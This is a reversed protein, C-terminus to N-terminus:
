LHSLLTFAIQTNGAEHVVFRANKYGYTEGPAYDFSVEQTFAPRALGEATFEKYSFKIQGGSVGAYSLTSM